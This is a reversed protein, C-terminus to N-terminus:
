TISEEFCGDEGCQIVCQELEEETVHRWNHDKHGCANIDFDYKWFDVFMKCTECYVYDKVTKIPLPTGPLVSDTYFDITDWNIGVSADQHHDIDRLIEHAQEDSVQINREYARTKVDEVTWTSTALEAEKLITLYATKIPKMNAEPRGAGIDFDKREKKDTEFYRELAEAVKDVLLPDGVIRVKTKRPKGSM